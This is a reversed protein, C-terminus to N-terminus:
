SDILQRKAAILQRNTAILKWRNAFRLFVTSFRFFLNLTFLMAKTTSAHMSHVAPTNYFLILLLDYEVFIIMNDIRVYVIGAGLLAVMIVM